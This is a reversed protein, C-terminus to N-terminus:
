DNSLVEKRMRAIYRGDDDPGVLVWGLKGRFLNNVKYVSILRRGIKFRYWGKYM